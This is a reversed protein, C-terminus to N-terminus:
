ALPCFLRSCRRLGSEWSEYFCCFSIKDNMYRILDSLARACKRPSIEKPWRTMLCLMVEAAPYSTEAPRLWERRKTFDIYCLLLVSHLWLLITAEWTSYAAYTSENFSVSTLKIAIQWTLSSTFEGCAPMCLSHFPRYVCYIGFM